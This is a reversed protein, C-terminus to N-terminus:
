KFKIAFAQMTKLFGVREFHVDVVADARLEKGGEVLRDLAGQYTWSATKVLGLYDFESNLTRSTWIIAPNKSEGVDAVYGTRPSEIVETRACGPAVLLFGFLALCTGRLPRAFTM